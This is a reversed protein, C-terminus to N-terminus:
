DSLYLFTLKGLKGSAADKRFQEDYAIDGWPQNNVKIIEYGVKLPIGMKKTYKTNLRAWAHQVVGQESVLDLNSFIYGAAVSFKPNKINFVKISGENGQKTQMKMGEDEEPLQNETLLPERFQITYPDQKCARVTASQLLKFDFPLNCVKDIFWGVQVGKNKGQGANVEDVLGSGELVILGLKGPSFEKSHTTVAGNIEFIDRQGLHEPVQANVIRPEEVLDISVPEIEIVKKAAMKVDYAPQWEGKSSGGWCSPLFPEVKTPDAPCVAGSEEFIGCGRVARLALDLAEDATLRSNLDLNLMKPLLKKLELEVPKESPMNIYEIEDVVNFKVINFYLATESPSNRFKEPLLGRNLIRYLVLGMSWVDNRRSNFENNLLEPAVYYPTGHLGTCQSQHCSEGLDALKGHCNRQTGCKESVLINEPKVDRHHYGERHMEVLGEFADLFLKVANLFANDSKGAAKVYSEFSGGQAAEMLIYRVKSKPKTSKGMGYIKVFNVSHFREMFKAEENVKAESSGVLKKIAVPFAECKVTATFVEGYSGSGVVKGDDNLDAQWPCPPTYGSTATTNSGSELEAFSPVSGMGDAHRRANKQVNASFEAVDKGRAVMRALHPPPEDDVADTRVGVVASPLCLLSLLLAQARRCRVNKMMGALFSSFVKQLYARPL